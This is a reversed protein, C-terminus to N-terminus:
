TNFLWTRRYVLRKKKKRMISVKWLVDAFDENVIGMMDLDCVVQHLFLYLCEHSCSNQTQGKM